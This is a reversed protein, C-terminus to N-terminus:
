PFAHRGPRGPSKLEGPLDLMGCNPMEVPEIMMRAGEVIVIGNAPQLSARVQTIRERSDCINVAISLNDFGTSAIYFYSRGLPINTWRIEGAKNTSRTRM